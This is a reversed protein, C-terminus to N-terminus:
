CPMAKARNGLKVLVAEIEPSEQTKDAKLPVIKHDTIFKRTVDADM